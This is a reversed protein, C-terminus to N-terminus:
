SANKDLLCGNQISHYVLNSVEFRAAALQFCTLLAAAQVNVGIVSSHPRVLVRVCARM